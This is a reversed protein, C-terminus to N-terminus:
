QNEPAERLIAAIKAMTDPRVLMWRTSNDDVDRFKVVITRSKDIKALEYEAYTRRQPENAKVFLDVRRQYERTAEVDNRTPGFVIEDGNSHDIVRAFQGPVFHPDGPWENVEAFQLRTGSAPHGSQTVWEVNPFEM